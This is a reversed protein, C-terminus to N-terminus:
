NAKFHAYVKGESDTRLTMSRGYSSGNAPNIYVGLNELHEILVPANVLPIGGRIVQFVVPAAAQAGEAIDQNSGSIVTIVPTQGNYYDNPNTGNQIEAADAIGDGDTDIDPLSFNEFRLSFVAKLQGITAISKNSDDATTATWPFISGQHDTGNTAREAALWSANTPSSAALHTYFPAAIAKLQGLLLPAKQKEAWDAPKLAPITFDLIIPFFGGDPNVQPTTLSLRITNSLAQNKLALAKLAEDAMHKVQGINAPGKNNEASGTIIPPVGNLWWSPRNLPDGVVTVALTLSALPILLHPKRLISFHM